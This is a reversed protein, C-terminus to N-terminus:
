VRHATVVGGLNNQGAGIDRTLSIRPDAEQQKAICSFNLLPDAFQTAKRVRDINVVGVIASSGYLLTGAGRVVEIREALLPEGAVAHDPSTASADITHHIAM